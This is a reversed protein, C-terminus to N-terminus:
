WVWVLSAEGWGLKVRQAKVKESGVFWELLVAYAYRERLWKFLEDVTKM